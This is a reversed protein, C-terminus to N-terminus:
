DHRHENHWDNAVAMAPPVGPLGPAMAKHLHRLVGWTAQTPQHVSRLHMVQDVLAREFAPALDDPLVLVTAGLKLEADTYSSEFAGIAQLATDAAKRQFSSNLKVKM